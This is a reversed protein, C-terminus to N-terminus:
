PLWRKGCNCSHHTVGALIVIAVQHGIMQHWFRM